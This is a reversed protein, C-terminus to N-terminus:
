LVRQVHDHRYILFTSGELHRGGGETVSDRHMNTRLFLTMTIIAMPTLQIYFEFM